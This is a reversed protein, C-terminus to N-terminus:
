ATARRWLLAAFAGAYALLSLVATLRLPHRLTM